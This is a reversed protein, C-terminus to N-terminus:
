QAARERCIDAVAQAMDSDSCTVLELDRLHGAAVQEFSGWVAAEQGIPRRTFDIFAEESLFIGAVHWYNPHEPAQWIVIVPHETTDDDACAILFEGPAPLKRKAVYEAAAAVGLDAVTASKIGSRALAMYRQGTREAIGVEKL